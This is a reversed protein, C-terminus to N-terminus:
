KKSGDQKTNLQNAQLTVGQLINQYAEFKQITHNIFKRIADSSVVVQRCVGNKDECLIAFEFDNTTLDKQESNEM